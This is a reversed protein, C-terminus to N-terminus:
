SFDFEEYDEVRENEKFKIHEKILFLLNPFNLTFFKELIGIDVIDIKYNKYDFINFTGYDNSIWIGSIQM